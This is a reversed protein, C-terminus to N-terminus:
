KKILRKRTDNYGANYMDIIQDKTPYKFMNLASVHMGDFALDYNLDFYCLSGFSITFLFINLLLIVCKRLFYRIPNIHYGNYNVGISLTKYKSDFKNYPSETLIGDMAKDLLLTNSSVFPIFSSQRLHLIINEKNTTHIHHYFRGNSFKSVKINIRKLDDDSAHSLYHQFTTDHFIRLMMDDFDLVLNFKEIICQLIEDPPIKLVICAAITAGASAGVFRLKDLNPMTENLAKYVGIYYPFLTGAGGFYIQEYDTNIHM